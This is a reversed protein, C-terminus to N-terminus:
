PRIGEFPKQLDNGYDRGFAALAGSERFYHGSRILGTYDTTKNTTSSSSHAGDLDGNMGATHWFPETRTGPELYVYARTIDYKGSM